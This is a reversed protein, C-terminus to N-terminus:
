RKANETSLVQEYERLYQTTVSELSYRQQIESAVDFNKSVTSSPDQIASIIGDAISAPDKVNVLRGAQGDFLVWPVGGSKEGAVVPLGAHLAEILVMGFSEELSPHCFVTAHSFEKALAARDVAGVFTVRNELGHQHAWSALQSGHELGPGVLRLQANPHVALVEPFARLLTRNNKSKGGNSVALVLPSSSRLSSDIELSVVPNPIVKIPRLYAMERRWSRVLYPSVATLNKTKLRAGIAMVARVFRYADPMHRLITYPADHATVLVPAVKSQFAALAFEYTWHAHVINPQTRAIAAALHRREIAFFDLARSRARFRFPVIFVELLAGQIHWTEIADSSGTILSVRQGAALLGRVLANVPVGGMGRPIESGAPLFDSFEIPNAPGVIAIHM